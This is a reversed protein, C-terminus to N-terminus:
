RAKRMAVAAKMQAALDKLTTATFHLVTWGALALENWKIRDSIFAEHSKHHQWGDVEAAIALEPIALDVFYLKGEIEVPHNAVWEPLHIQRLLVHAERELESWPEARSEALLRAREKNGRRRGTVALADHLDELTVVGRRLAQDIAEGGLTDTLDLVTLAPDSLFHEGNWAKLEAPVARREVSFGKQARASTPDAFQVADVALEPWWSLKAATDRVFVANPCVERAVAVRVEFSTAAEPTSYCGGLVRELQGGAVYRDIVRALKPLSTRSIYGARELEQQIEENM